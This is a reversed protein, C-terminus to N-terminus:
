KQSDDDGNQKKQPAPAPPTSAPPPTAPPATAPPATAPPPTAPPASTVVAGSKDPLYLPGKQGCGSLAGAAAAALLATALMGAAIRRPGNRGNILMNIFRENAVGSVV